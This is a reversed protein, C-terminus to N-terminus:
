GVDLIVLACLLAAYVSSARLAWLRERRRRGAAVVYNRAAYAAFALALIVTGANSLWYAAIALAYASAVAAREVRGAARGTPFTLALQALPARHLVLAATM